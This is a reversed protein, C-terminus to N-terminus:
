GKTTACRAQRMVRRSRLHKVLEKKLVGRAQVFLTRYITEHSVRLSEDDPYTRELWGSIQESSWDRSLKKSVIRQLRRNQALECAKPRRTKDWAADEAEAARYQGRGGNRTVERSVTSPARGLEMAIARISRSAAVGRSIEERESLTLARRSRQRPPHYIGGRTRLVGFISAAHKNLARGIDSLVRWAELAGMARGKTGSFTWTSGNEGNCVGGYIKM